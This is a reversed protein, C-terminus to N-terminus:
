ESGLVISGTAGTIKNNEDRIVAQKIAAPVLAGTKKQLTANELMDSLKLDETVPQSKLQYIVHYLSLKSDLVEGPAYGLAQEFVPNVYEFKGYENM